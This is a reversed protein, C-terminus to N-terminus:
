YLVGGLLVFCFFVSLCVFCGSVQKYNTSGLFSHQKIYLHLTMNKFKKLYLSLKEFTFISPFFSFIISQMTHLTLLLTDGNQFIM